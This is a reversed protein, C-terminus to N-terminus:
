HGIFEPHEMDLPVFVQKFKRDPFSDSEWWSCNEGEVLDFVLGDRGGGRYEISMAAPPEDSEFVFDPEM